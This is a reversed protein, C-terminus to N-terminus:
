FRASFKAAWQDIDLINVTELAVADSYHWGLDSGVSASNSFSYIWNSVPLTSVCCFIQQM